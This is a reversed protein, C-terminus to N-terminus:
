IGSAKAASRPKPVSYLPHLIKHTKRETGKLLNRSIVKFKKRISGKGKIGFEELGNKWAVSLMKSSAM